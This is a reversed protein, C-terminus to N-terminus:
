RTPAGARHAVLLDDQAEVVVWDENEVIGDLLADLEPSLSLRDIVLWDVGAPDHQDEGAVGWNQEQWPNPFSYVERRHTLHPVLLYTAAVSADEPPTRVARRLEAARENPTLPWFGERYHTSVPSVGWAATTALACAAVLGLLFRRVALSTRRGIGEIMALTAGALPLAAYHFRLSWTFANASLLNVLAQPAGLLLVGPSLLPTFGYPALLDRAYGLANATELQRTVATPNTVATDALAWPSDGLPGFFDEYFVGAPSFAPIILRTCLLFWGLATVVTVVGVRRVEHEGARHGRYALLLGLVMAALAIDEKWSVAFVLWVAYARWRRETAALFAFFLPTMAVAEAHFTEQVMWQSTFHLLFALAPIVAHWEDAFWRRGLRFLPIPALAVSGVMVLNLFNPGAGLWYFPVLLYFALNVHNGFVGLGRVTDFGHGHALLWVAQDYIGLDFDFTGFREHRLVVLRGFVLAFLAMGVVLAVRPPGLREFGDRALAVARRPWSRLPPRVPPAVAEAM